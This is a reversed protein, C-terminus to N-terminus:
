GKENSPFGLPSWDQPGGGGKQCMWHKWGISESFGRYAHCLPQNQEGRAGTSSLKSCALRSPESSFPSPRGPLYAILSLMRQQDIVGSEGNQQDFVPLSLYIGALQLREKKKTPSVGVYSQGPPQTCWGSFRCCGFASTKVGYASYGGQATM